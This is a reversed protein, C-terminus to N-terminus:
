KSWFCKFRKGKKNLNIPEVRVQLKEIKENYEEIQKDKIKTAAKWGEVFMKRKEIEELAKEKSEKDEIVMNIYYYMTGDTGNIVKTIQHNQGDIHIYDDVNLIKHFNNTTEITIEEANEQIEFLLDGENDSPESVSLKSDHWGVGKFSFSYSDKCGMYYVKKSVIGKIVSKM